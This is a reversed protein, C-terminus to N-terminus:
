EPLPAHVFFMPVGTFWGTKLSYQFPSAIFSSTFNTIAPPHAKERDRL